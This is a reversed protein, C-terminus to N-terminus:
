NFMKDLYMNRPVRKPSGYVYNFDNVAEEVSDMNNKNKLREEKKLVDKNWKEMNSKHEYLPALDLGGKYKMGGGYVMFDMNDPQGQHRRRPHQGVDKIQQNLFQISIQKMFDLYKILYRGKPLEINNSPDPIKKNLFSYVRKHIGSYFDMTILASVEAITKNEFKDKKLSLLTLGKTPYLINPFFASRKKAWLIFMTALLTNNIELFDVYLQLHPKPILISEMEIGGLERSVFNANVGEINIVFANMSKSRDNGEFFTFANSAHEIFKIM